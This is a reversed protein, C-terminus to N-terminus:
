RAPPLPPTPEGRRGQGVAQEQQGRGQNHGPQRHQQHDDLSRPVAEM